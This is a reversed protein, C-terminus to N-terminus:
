IEPPIDIGADPPSLVMFQNHINFLLNCAPIEFLKEQMVEEQHEEAETITNEVIEIAAYSVASSEVAHICNTIILLQLNIIIIIIINLNISM